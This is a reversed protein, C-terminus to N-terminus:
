TISQGMNVAISWITFAGFIVICGVIYPVLAEKVKAKDEASAVLFQIGIIIGVIFAVVIGVATLLKFMFNSTTKLQGEDIVSTSSGASLFSDASSFAGSISGSGGSSSSSTSGLTSGTNSSSQEWEYVYGSCSRCYGSAVGSGSSGCLPCYTFSAYNDKSVSNGCAHCKGSNAGSGSAKCYPCYTYTVALSTTKFTALVFIFMVIFLITKMTNKSM